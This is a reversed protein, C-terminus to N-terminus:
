CVINTWCGGLHCINGPWSHQAKCITCRMIDTAEAPDKNQKTGVGWACAVGGKCLCRPPPPPSGLAAGHWMEGTKGENERTACACPLQWKSCLPYMALPHHETGGINQGSFSFGKNLRDEGANIEGWMTFNKWQSSGSMTNGLSSAPKGRLWPELKEQNNWSHPQIIRKQPPAPTNM